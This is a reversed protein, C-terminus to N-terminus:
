RRLDWRARPLGHVDVLASDLRLTLESGTLWFTPNPTLGTKSLLLSFTLPLDARCPRWSSTWILLAQSCPMPLCACCRTAQTTSMTMPHPTPAARGCQLAPLIKVSLRVGCRVNPTADTEGATCIGNAVGHRPLALPAVEVQWRASSESLDAGLVRRM